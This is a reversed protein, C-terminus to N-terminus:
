FFISRTHVNAFIDQQQMVDVVAVAAACSVANGAYTGGKHDNTLCDSSPFFFLFHCVMFGPSLNDTLERRSVM